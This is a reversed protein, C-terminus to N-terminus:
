AGGAQQPAAAPVIEGVDRPASKAAVERRDKAVVHDAETAHATSTLFFPSRLSLCTRPPAAGTRLSAFIFFRPSSRSHVVAFRDVCFIFHLNKM